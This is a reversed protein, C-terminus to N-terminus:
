AAAESAASAAAVRLRVTGGQASTVRPMALEPAAIRAYLPLAAAALVESKSSVAREVLEGMGDDLAGPLHLLQEFALARLVDDATEDAAMQEFVRRVEPAALATLQARATLRAAIERSALQRLSPAVARVAGTPNRAALSDAADLAAQRCEGAEGCI